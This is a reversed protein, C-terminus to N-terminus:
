VESESLDFLLLWTNHFIASSSVAFMFYILVLSFCDIQLRLLDAILERIEFTVCFWLLHENLCPNLAVIMEFLSLLLSFDTGSIMCVSCCDIKSQPNCLIAFYIPNLCNM